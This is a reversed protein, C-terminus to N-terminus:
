MWCMNYINFSECVVPDLSCLISQHLKRFRLCSKEQWRRNVARSAPSGTVTDTGRLRWRKGTVRVDATGRPSWPVGGDCKFLEHCFRNSVSRTRKGFLNNSNNDLEIAELDPGKVITKEGCNIGKIYVSSCYKIRTFWTKLNKRERLRALNVEGKVGFLFSADSEYKIYRHGRWCMDHTIIYTAILLCYCHSLSLFVFDVLTYNSLTCSYKQSRCM